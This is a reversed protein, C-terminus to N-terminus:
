ELQRDMLACLESQRIESIDNGTERMKPTEARRTLSPNM